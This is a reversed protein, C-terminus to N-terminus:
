PTRAKPKVTAQVRAELQKLFQSLDVQTGALNEVVSRGSPESKISFKGQKGGLVSYQDKEERVLFLIVEEGVRFTPLGPAAQTIGSTTGYPLLLTLTDLKSGKWRERVTLVVQTTPGEPQSPSPTVAQVNGRVILDAGAILEELSQFVLTTTFAPSGALGGVVLLLVCVKRTLGEM